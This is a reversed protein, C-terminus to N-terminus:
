TRVPGITIYSDDPASVRTRRTSPAYATTRVVSEIYASTLLADSSMVAPKSKATDGCCNAKAAKQTACKATCCSCCKGPVCCCCRCEGCDTKGAVVKQVAIKSTTTGKGCVSKVARKGDGCCGKTQADLNPAFLFALVTMAVIFVSPLKM